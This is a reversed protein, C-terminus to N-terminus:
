PFTITGNKDIRIKFTGGFQKNNNKTDKCYFYGIATNGEKKASDNLVNFRNKVLHTTAGLAETCECSKGNYIFKGTLVYKILPTNTKKDRVRYTYTGIKSQYGARTLGNIEAEYSETEIYLNEDLDMRSESVLKMDKPVDQFSNYIEKQTFLEPVTKEYAYGNISILLSM